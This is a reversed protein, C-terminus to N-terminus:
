EKEAEQERKTLLRMTHGHCEPWGHSLYEGVLPTELRYERRCKDCRLIAGGWVPDATISQRLRAARLAVEAMRRM